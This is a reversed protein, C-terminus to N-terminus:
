ILARKLTKKLTKVMRHPNWPNWISHDMSELHFSGHFGHPSNWVIGYQNWMSHDMSYDMSDMHVTGYWEM